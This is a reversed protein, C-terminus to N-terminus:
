GLESFVYHLSENFMNLVQNVLIIHSAALLDTVFYLLDEVRIKAFESRLQSPKLFININLHELKCICRRQLRVRVKIQLNPCRWRLAFQSCISHDHRYTALVLVHARRHRPRQKHAGAICLFLSVKEAKLHNLKQLFLEFRIM